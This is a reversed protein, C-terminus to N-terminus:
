DAAHGLWAPLDLLGVEDEPALVVRDHYAKLEDLFAMSRLSRGGYLLRWDAGLLEAQVIMPLLPTIGIGGAIFLYRRSPVLPFNNRPGGIALVDGVTLTDHVYMSGGRGDAERLVAVRYTHADWRDGCLSYQKTLGNPLILDIHAGPAWDPLRRDAPHRLTLAVVGEAVATKAVVRVTNTVNEAPLPAPPM